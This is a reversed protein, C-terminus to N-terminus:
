AQLSSWLITARQPQHVVGGSSTVVLRAGVGCRGCVIPNECSVARETTTVHLAAALVPPTGSVPKSM